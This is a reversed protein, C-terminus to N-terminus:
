AGVHLLGLRLAPNDFVPPEDEDGILAILFPVIGLKELGAAYANEENDFIGHVTQNKIVAYKGRHEGLLAPRRQNFYEIEPQLVDVDSM